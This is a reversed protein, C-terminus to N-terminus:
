AIGTSSCTRCDLHKGEANLGGKCDPCAETLDAEKEIYKSISKPEETPKIDLKKGEIMKEFKSGYPDTIEDKMNAGENIKYAEEEDDDMMQRWDTYENM